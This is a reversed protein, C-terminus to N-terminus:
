QSVKADALTVHDHLNLVDLPDSSEVIIRLKSVDRVNITVRKLAKATIIESFREEGDCLIRVRPRSEAQGYRPDVGLVTEFRKFKRALDYELEAHAHVSVGRKFRQPKGDESKLVIADGNLSRNEKYLVMLGGPNRIKKNTKLRTLYTLKGLNFDFAVLADADYTVKKGFTTVLEYDKGSFSVESAYVNNGKSDFAICVPKKYLAKPRFFIMGHLKDLSVMRKTGAIRFEVKRQTADINGLVGPITNLVGERLIIVRDEKLKKAILGNWKERLEADHAKRVFYLLFDHPFEMKVGTVLTVAVTKDKFTVDSCLLRTDDILRIESYEGDPASKERDFQLGLVESFPVIKNGSKTKLQVKDGSIKVVDGAIKDGSLTELEAASSATSCLLIILFARLPM